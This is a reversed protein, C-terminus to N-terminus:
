NQWNIKEKLIKEADKFINCGFFGKYCSLPSPHVATLVNKKNEILVKKNQAFKGFLIYVCNKNNEDIFKIVDDTFEKWIDMHSGPCGKEVTLSCNLLFIKEKEFWKTLNGHKFEYNRDKFELNLEKFINRLSPPPTTDEIVSFALGHAQKENNHYCDQGLLLIKIDKVPM